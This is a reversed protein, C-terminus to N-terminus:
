AANYVHHTFLVMLSQSGLESRGAITPRRVRAVSTVPVVPGVEDSPQPVCRLSTEVTAGHINGYPTEYSQVQDGSAGRRRTSVRSM